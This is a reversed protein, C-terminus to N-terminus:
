VVVCADGLELFGLSVVEPELLLEAGCFGLIFLRGLIDEAAHLVDLVGLGVACAVQCLEQVGFELVVLPAGLLEATDTL